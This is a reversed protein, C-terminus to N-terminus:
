SKERALEWIVKCSLDIDVNRVLNHQRYQRHYVIEEMNDLQKKSNVVEKYLREKEQQLSVM